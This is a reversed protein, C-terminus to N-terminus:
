VDEFEDEESEEGGNGNSAPTAVVSPTAAASEVKVRKAGPLESPTGVAVDEFEDDDEDDDDDDDEEQEKKRREAEIQAFVDDLNQTETTGDAQETGLAALVCGTVYTSSLSEGTVRLRGSEDELMMDDQAGSVYTERPPPAAIWHEKSIDDLVNPKLAMEMYVTGVIWCLEGQRVDLVREVFTAKEGGLEFDDWADHAKQM